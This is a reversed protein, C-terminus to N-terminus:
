PLAAYAGEVGAAVAPDLTGFPAVELETGGARRRHHWTGVVRGDHVVTPQFVGNGGPVVLVSHEPDLVASRDGYGLLLEDFGPLMLTGRAQDRCRDLHEPTAPDLLHEVGDVDVSALAPRALAVGTRVDAATLGTWRAFDKVPAPGHSRFYREAWLGLSEEREPRSPHQVWEDVLCILPEKGDLPGFCLVAQQALVCLLHYGGSSQAPLGATVWAAMLDARHLTRGGSLHKEAVARAATVDDDDIGRERRRSAAAAIMRPGTLALMWGLDAAPVLHLTGRMPWSRVVDGRAMAEVVGSLRRSTTRLAVSTLAGPHDQAQVAALWRVVAAADDDPPDVLRQAVIRLLAVEHRSTM